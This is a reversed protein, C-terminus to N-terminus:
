IELSFSDFGQQAGYQIGPSVPNSETQVPTVSQQLNLLRWTEEEFRLLSHLTALQTSDGTREVETLLKLLYVYLDSIPGSLPNSKEQVGDLLEGLIDRIRLLWERGQAYEGQSWLQEVLNCLEEARRILMWRLRIPSASLVEQQLYPNTESNSSQM